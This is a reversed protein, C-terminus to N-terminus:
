PLLVPAVARLPADLDASFDSDLVRDWLELAAATTLYRDMPVGDVIEPVLASETDPWPLGQGAPLEPIHQADLGALGALYAADPNCRVFSHGADIFAQLPVRVHPHDPQGQVHDVASALFMVPLDPLAAALQAFVPSPDRVAWYADSQPKSAYYNPLQGNPFLAQHADLFQMLARSHYLKPLPIGPANPGGLGQFLFDEDGCTGSSDIDICLSGDVPHPTDTAPDHLVATAAPDFLLGSALNPLPCAELTCTGPVYYPNLLGNRAGLEVTVYQPGLPSEWTAAWRVLSRVEAHHHLTMWLSNGGNSSGILGVGGPAAVPVLESLSLGDVAALEGAGYRIVDALAQQCAVGRYDYTGGSAVSGASGGPFVFQIRILGSTVM